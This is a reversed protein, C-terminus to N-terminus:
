KDDPKHSAQSDEGSTVSSYSQEDRFKRFPFISKIFLKVLKNIGKSGLHINDSKNKYVCFEDKLVRDNVFCEFDLVKFTTNSYNNYDFLMRNFQVARNNLHLLKTPLIPSVILTAKPNM